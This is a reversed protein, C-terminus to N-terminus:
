RALVSDAVAAAARSVPTVFVGLALVPATLGFVLVNEAWTPRASELRESDAPPRLYMAQLVRAYYFLSWVTNLAAVGVLVWMMPSVWGAKLSAGFVMFKGIFGGAPWIGVLSMCCIAMGGCAVPLRAWLGGFDEVREGYTANRALAIVAFAGLNMFVYVALYYLLGELGRRGAGGGAVMWAAVGMLLYGAHAITSYAFLRKVNEQSFAALNGLTMTLAAIAALGVGFAQRMEEVAVTEAGFLAQLVRVLLAFAGAKPAISVFGAVEASAGEFADPCWFHFPVLALKFALGAFVFLAGLLATRGAATALPSAGEGLVEPMRVAIEPLSATGLTGALLSTGYLLVGAAGAGYVLYKLAAEGSTRRGKLFGVLAYGPVSSMEVSLFLMLLHNSQAMLLSGLASGFLLTHFDPGDERDPLGSVATLWTALVLLGTLLVRLYVTLRDDVLMGTFLVEHEVPSRGAFFAERVQPLTTAFAAVAGAIAVWRPGIVRDTGFLRGLLLAVITACVVLEAAFAPVSVDLTDRILDDLLRSFTV